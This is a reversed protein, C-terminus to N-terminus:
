RENKQHAPKFGKRSDVASIETIALLPRGGRIFEIKIQSGLKMNGVINKLTFNNKVLIGNARIILNVVVRAVLAGETNSLSLEQVQEPNMNKIEVGLQGRSVKGHQILQDKINNVMNSPIAFGIGLSGGNRGGLIATNIGILEGKLNVLAGGSNGPNIPADTQIFDEYSEIGLGSRGLASVIGSTATQGLGFPNGIAVVFDGVRLQESDALPMAVLREPQIQLVCVDADTDKGVVRAM